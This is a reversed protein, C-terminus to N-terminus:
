KKWYKAVMEGVQSIRGPDLQGTKKPMVAFQKEFETV